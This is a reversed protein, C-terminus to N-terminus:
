TTFVGRDDAFRAYRDNQNRADFSGAIKRMLEDFGHMLARTSAHGQENTETEFGSPLRIAVHTRGREGLRRMLNRAAWFVWFRRVADLADLALPLHRELMSLAQRGDVASEYDMFLAVERLFNTQGACMRYGARRCAAAEEVRGLEFLPRTLIALTIHPVEGCTLEKRLLPQARDIARETDGTFLLVEVEFNRECAECDAYDDRPASAFAEFAARAEDVSDAVSMALRARQLHVPRLSLGHELYRAQMDELTEHLQVASIQPFHPANEIIWKYIWLLDPGFWLWEKASFRQPEADCRGLCWAFAVLTKEPFGSFITYEILKKRARFGLEEDGRLDALRVAQEGVAVQSPGHRMADAQELLEEVQEESAASEGDGNGDPQPGESMADAM